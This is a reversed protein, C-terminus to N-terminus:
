ALDQPLADDPRFAPKAPEAKARAGTLEASGRDRLYELFVRASHLECAPLVDVLGKVQQRLQDAPSQGPVVTREPLQEPEPPLAIQGWPPLPEPELGKGGFWQNIHYHLLNARYNFWREREIPFTLLVDKFRRFAGKGDIAILLRDRLPQDEVTAVFREMWRYQERSSAPEIKVYREPNAGIQRRTEEDEPQGDVAVLVDGTERDIYSHLEPSNREFAIEVNEWNVKLSKM